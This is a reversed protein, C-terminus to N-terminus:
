LVKKFEVSYTNSPNFTGSLSIGIYFPESSGRSTRLEGAVKTGTSSKEDVDLIDDDLFSFVQLADLTNQDLQAIDESASISYSIPSAVFGKNVSFTWKIYSISTQTLEFSVTTIDAVKTNDNNYVGLKKGAAISNISKCIENVKDKDILIKDYSIKGQENTTLVDYRFKIGGSDYYIFTEGYVPYWVKNRDPRYMLPYSWVIDTGDLFYDKINFKNEFDVDLWYPVKSGAITKGNFLCLM